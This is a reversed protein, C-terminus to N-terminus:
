FIRVQITGISECYPWKTRADFDKPLEGLEQRRQYLQTSNIRSRGADNLDHKTPKEGGLLKKYFQRKAESVLISKWTSPSKALYQELSHRNFKKTIMETDVPPKPEIPKIPNSHPSPPKEVPKIPIVPPKEIPKVPPKPEVPKIPESPPKAIPKIPENPREESIDL